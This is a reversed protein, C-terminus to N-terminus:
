AIEVGEVMEKLQQELEQIRQKAAELQRIYFNLQNLIQALTNEM